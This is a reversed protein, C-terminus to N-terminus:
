KFILVLLSYELYCFFLCCVMEKVLQDIRPAPKRTCSGTKIHANMPSSGARRFRPHVLTCLCSKCMVKPKGSKENAVQQFRDWISSKPKSDWNITQNVESKSGFETTLWWSVFKKRSEDMDGRSSDVPYLVWHKQLPLGVRTLSSPATLTPTPLQSISTLPTQISIFDSIDDPYLRDSNLGLDSDAYSYQSQSIQSHSM